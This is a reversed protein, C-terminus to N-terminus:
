AEYYNDGACARCLTDGDCQVERNNIIEEGCRACHARAGPRGFWEGPPRTLRVPQFLLLEEDPMRQYGQLQAFYRRREEPAYALARERVGDGPRVRVAAGTAANVFTAAIKGHDVIRLTRRGVTVGAAVEVGDAFCGDSEVIVLLRRGVPEPGLAARGALGIRVGLVQRPCLHRHRGAVYKLLEALDAMERWRGYSLLPQSFHGAFHRETPPRISV